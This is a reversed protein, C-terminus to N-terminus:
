WFLEPNQRVGCPSKSEQKVEAMAKMLVVLLTGEYLHQM